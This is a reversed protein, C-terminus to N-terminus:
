VKIRKQLAQLGKAARERIGAPTMSRARRILRDLEADAEPHRFDQDMQDFSAVLEDVLPHDEKERKIIIDGIATTFERSRKQSYLRGDHDLQIGDRIFDIYGKSCGPNLEAIVDRGLMMMGAKYLDAVSNQLMVQDEGDLEDFNEPFMWSYPCTDDAIQDLEVLGVRLALGLSDIAAHFFEDEKGIAKVAEALGDMFERMDNSYMSCAM